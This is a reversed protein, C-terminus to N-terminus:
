QGPLRHIGELLGRGCEQFPLVRLLWVSPRGGKMKEMAALVKQYTGDGRRMDTADEYGEISFALAFNGM